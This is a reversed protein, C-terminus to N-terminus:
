HLMHRAPRIVLRGKLSHAQNELYTRVVAGHLIDITEPALNQTAAVDDLIESLLDSFHEWHLENEHKM